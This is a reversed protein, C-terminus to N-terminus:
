RDGKKNIKNLKNRAEVLNDELRLMTKLLELSSFIDHLYRVRVFSHYERRAKEVALIAKIKLTTINDLDTNM